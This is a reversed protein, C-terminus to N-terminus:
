QEYEIEGMKWLHENEGKHIRALVFFFDSLRNLYKGIIAYNQNSKSEKEIKELDWFLVEAKRTICRTIHIFSSLISGGPLIFNATDQLNAYLHNIKSELWHVYNEDIKINGGSINGGINLLQNQISLLDKTDQVYNVIMGIYSNLEDLSGLFKILESNKDIRKGIISTRGKDGSKTVYPCNKIESTM